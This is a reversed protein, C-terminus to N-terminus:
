TTYNWQKGGALSCDCLCTSTKTQWKGQLMISGNYM